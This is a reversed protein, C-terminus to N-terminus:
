SLKTKYLRWIVYFFLLSSFIIIVIIEINDYWLTDSNMTVEIKQPQKSLIHLPFEWKVINNKKDIMEDITNANIIRYPLHMKYRWRHGYLAIPLFGTLMENQEYSDGVEFEVTRSIKINDSEDEEIKFNAIFGRGKKSHETIKKLDEITDFNFDIVYHKYGNNIYEKNQNLILGRNKVINNKINMVEDKVIYIIDFEQKMITETIKITMKMRGSQNSNIWIEEEYNFCGAAVFLLVVLLLNIIIKM